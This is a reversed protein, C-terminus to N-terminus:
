WDSALLDQCAELELIVLEVGHSQMFARSSECDPWTAGVVVKPIRPLTRLWRDFAEIGCYNSLTGGMVMLAHIDANRLFDYLFGRSRGPTGSATLAGGPLIVVRAGRRHAARVASEVMQLQYSSEIHDLLIAVRIGGSM